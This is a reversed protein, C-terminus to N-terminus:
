RGTLDDAFTLESSAGFRRYNLFTSEMWETRHAAATYDVRYTSRVPVVVAAGGILSPSFSTTWSLAEIGYYRPLHPRSARWSIELLRGDHSSFVATGDFELSYTSSGVVLLWGMERSNVHFHTEVAPEAFYTTVDGRLTDGRALAYRTINLITTLEGMVFPGGLKKLSPYTRDGRRISNYEETGDIFRVTATFSDSHLSRGNRFYRETQQDFMVNRAALIQQDLETV